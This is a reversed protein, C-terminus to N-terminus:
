KKFDLSVLKSIGKEEMTVGYVTKAAEMTGKRHTIIIFQTKTNTHNLLYNTFRDINIDDLAAEIEDLVCIPSPNIKLIAFLLAIATLTREGGSLLLMSQLKKGPPQAKILIESNLLDEEDSLELDADGGGFFEKFVIKFNERIEYFKTSFEEEMANNLKIIAKKIEEISTNMDEKQKELFDKREKIEMYEDISTIDVPGINKIEEKLNKIIKNADKLDINAIENEDIKIESNPTIEYNEWMNEILREREFELKSIEFEIKNIKDTLELKSKSLDEFSKQIEYYKLENEKQRKLINDILEKNENSINEFKNIEIELTKIVEKQKEINLRKENIKQEKEESLNINKNIQEKVLNAMELSSEMSDKFSSLSIKLDTVEDQLENLEEKEKTNERIKLYGELEKNEKEKLEKKNLNEKLKEKLSKIDEDTSNFENKKVDLLNEYKKIDDEIKSKKEEFIAYEVSSKNFTKYYDARLNRINLLNDEEKKISNELDLIKKENKNIQKELDKIEDKRSLIGLKTKNQSGGTMAGSANIIDGDLTVIKFQKGDSKSFNIGHKLNEAIVVKGLLYDFINEYMKDYSILDKAFGIIGPHNLNSKLKTNMGKISNLPLFTARGYNNKKLFDIVTSADEKTEVVINQLSYGLASEIAVSYKNDCDILNAVVGKVIKNFDDRKSKEELVKKIAFGYSENQTEMVQLVNLRGNLSSTLAILDKKEKEFNYINEKAEDVKNNLIEIKSEETEKKQALELNSKIFDEKETRKKDLESIYQRKFEINKENEVKLHEINTEMLLNETNLSYIEDINKDIKEKLEILEKESNSMKLIKEDLETKKELYTQEFSKTDESYKLYKEYRENYEKTKNSIEINLTEKEKNLNEIDENEKKILESKLLIDRKAKENEELKINSNNVKEELEKTLNEKELINEEKKTNLSEEQNKLSKETELFSKNIENFEEKKIKIENLSKLFIKTEIEELERSAKLYRKAKESKEELSPINLDIESLIDKLRLLNLDTEELKKEAENKRYKYKMIGAAEEFIRKRDEDNSSLIEDIKGQGIISYGDKGIGTGMLLERVEKLRVKSDNLLYESDGNRYLKRTIKIENFDIDFFRDENSFYISVEAYGLKRRFETGNFIIDYSKEGRLSKMSQEGLVWRIADVINSKGSGNPGVIATIGSKFDIVTKEAFSKFGYIEMKQLYM